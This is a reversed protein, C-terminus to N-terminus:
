KVLTVCRNSATVRAAGAAMHGSTPRGESAEGCLNRELPATYTCTRSPPFNCIFTVAQLKRMEKTKFHALLNNSHYSEGPDM